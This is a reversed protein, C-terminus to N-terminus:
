GLNSSTYTIPLGSTITAGPGYDAEGYTKAALPDFRITQQQKNSTVTLTGPVYAMNYNGATGGGM